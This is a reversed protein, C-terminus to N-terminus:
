FYKEEPFNAGSKQRGLLCTPCVLKLVQPNVLLIQGNIPFVSSGQRHGNKDRYATRGERPLPAM